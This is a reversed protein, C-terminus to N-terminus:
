LLFSVNLTLHASENLLPFRTDAEIAVLAAMISDLKRRTEVSLFLKSSDVNM